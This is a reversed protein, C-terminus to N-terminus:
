KADWDIVTKSKLYPLMWVMEQGVVYYMTRLQQLILYHPRVDAVLRNYTDESLYGFLDNGMIGVYGDNWLHSVYTELFNDSDGPRINYVIRSM